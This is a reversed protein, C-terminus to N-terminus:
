ESDDIKWDSDEQEDPSDFTELILGDSRLTEESYSLFDTLEKKKAKDENEPHWKAWSKNEYNPDNEGIQVTVLCPNNFGRHLVKIWGLDELYKRKQQYTSQSMGVHACIKRQAWFSPRVYEWNFVFAYFWLLGKATGDLKANIISNGFKYLKDQVKKEPKNKSKM